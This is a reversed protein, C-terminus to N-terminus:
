HSVLYCDSVSSVLTDFHFLEVLIVSFKFISFTLVQVQYAPASPPMNPTSTYGVGATQYGYVQPISGYTAQTGDVVVYRPQAAYRRRHRICVCVMCMLIFIFIM